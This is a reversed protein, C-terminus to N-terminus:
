EAYMKGKKILLYAFVPVGIIATIAGVPLEIGPVIMKAAFDALMMLAGGFLFSTPLVLRHDGGIAMRCLHPIVLGVFGIIGVFAVCISTIISAIILMARNFNKADLGLLTAQDEGLLILNFEKAWIFPIFSMMIAPIFVMWINDWSINAFSGFLWSLASSIKGSGLSMILTQIASFALGVVIGALVYNIANGGSREAILMTIFFAVMGGILAAIAVLYPSNTSLLGFFNFGLAIVAVAFTGAGSSVGMIYPDVLPNKIVAQYMCGAISLGVGVAFAAMARPLRNYVYVEDSTLNNGGKSIASALDGMADFPAITKGPGVCISLIFVFVTLLLGIGMIILLKRRTRQVNGGIESM